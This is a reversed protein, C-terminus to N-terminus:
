EDEDAESCAAIERRRMLKAALVEDLSELERYDGPREPAGPEHGYRVFANVVVTALSILPLWIVLMSARSQLVGGVLAGLSYTVLVAALFLIRRAGGADRSRMWGVLETCLNTLTSTIYTTSVAPVGLHGVATGQVGMALASM